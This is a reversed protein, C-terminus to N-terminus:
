MGVLEVRRNKARGEEDTNSAVPAAMGVGVPTLRDRGVGYDRVLADVTARARRESLGRNYDVTGKNDTHGVVLLRLNSDAKLLKGIEDLQPKSEPKLDAKDFDFFIGYIAIRGQSSISTAMESSSVTVMRAERPRTDVASLIAVTRGNLAACDRHPDAITYALVSLYTEIAGAAYKGALYRQGAISSTLACYGNSFDQSQLEDRPFVTLLLGTSGGGARIGRRVDGGCETGNCSYLVEGGKAKIEDEYGRVGELPSRGEPLLYVTRTREGEVGQKREPAYIRNNVGDKTNTPKLASLALTMQDFARRDYEIIFSGEYRKINPHDKANAIDKTPNTARGFTDPPAFAIAAALSLSFTVLFRCVLRM